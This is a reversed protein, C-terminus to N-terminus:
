GGIVAKTKIKRIEEEEAWILRGSKLDRLNMTFKYYVDKIRGERQEIESLNATLMYRPADQQGAAIPDKAAAQQYALEEQLAAETTRDQFSFMRSKILRTRISDTISETDIHQMTKNKVKDVILLPPGASSIEALIEDALLSDVMKAAIKQLDASGFGTDVAKGSTPDGYEVTTTCGAALMALVAAPALWNWMRKM